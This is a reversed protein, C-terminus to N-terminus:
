TSAVPNGSADTRVVKTGERMRQLGDTVVQDGVAIPGAVIVTGSIRSVITVAVRHATSDKDVRWVYSGNRDWQVALSPVAPHAEGPFTMTVNLAMGPKLTKTDNPLTAHVNLTRAVPDVRSDVASITGNFSAGALADATAGVKQGIAVLGSAREPLSFSVTVTSMDDLTAIAKSSTILDGISLDTLGITGAFPAVVVRQDLDLQASKLNAQAKQLANHADDLAAPTINSTKALSDARDAAAQASDAALKAIEVAVQQTSDDLHVLTQGSAVPTGPKFSIDTVFGTVEPYLTVEQAAAVTGIATVDLGTNDTAVAATIVPAAPAGGAGGNRNGQQGGAAGGGGSAATTAAQQGHSGFWGRQYGLWGAALMLVLVISLAIQRTASM